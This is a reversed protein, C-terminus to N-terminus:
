EDTKKRIFFQHTTKYLFFLPCALIFTYLTQLLFFNRYYVSIDVKSLFSLSLIIFLINKIILGFLILLLFAVFNDISIRYEILSLLYGVTCYIIGYFGIIRYGFFDVSLGAFLGLMMAFFSGNFVGALIVFIVVVDPLVQFFGFGFIERFHYVHFLVIFFLLIIINVLFKKL